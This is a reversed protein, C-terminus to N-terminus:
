REKEPVEVVEEVDDYDGDGAVGGLEQRPTLVDDYGEPPYVPTSHPSEGAPTVDDYIEVKNEAVDALEQRPTLVDDYGEPPCVPTSHPSEGAPTVDDYIEVKNKALRDPTQGATIVDDYNDTTDETGVESRLGSTISENYYEPKEEDVTKTSLLQEEVNEYGSNQEESLINGTVNSCFLRPFGRETFRKNVHKHDIEEYVPESLTKQRRKSLVRRFVRNQNFLVVLLVLALSLLMGLVLLSVPYAYPYHSSPIQSPSITQKTTTIESAITSTSTVFIDACSVEARHSCGTHRKLSHPCDWLHFENGKCTVRNLWVTGEGAGFASSGGARKAPGCGLQKCVVETDKIDWLDDCVSGWEANHYVELRGSCSGEGGKLRLPLHNSRQNLHPFLSFKLHNELTRQKNERLM